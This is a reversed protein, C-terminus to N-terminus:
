PITMGNCHPCDEDGPSLRWSVVKSKPSLKNSAVMGELLCGRRSFQGSRDEM